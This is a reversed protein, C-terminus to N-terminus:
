YYELDDAARNDMAATLTGKNGSQEIQGNVQICNETILLFDPSM